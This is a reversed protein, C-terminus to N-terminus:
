VQKKWKVGQPTDELLIGKESLQERIRDALTFDKSKRAAQRRAILAEVEAELSQKKLEFGLVADFRRVLSLASDREATSLHGEAKLRNIERIMDFVVGLAGSINL